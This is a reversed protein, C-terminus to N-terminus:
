FSQTETATSKNSAGLSSQQIKKLPCERILHDPSDCRWCTRPKRTQNNEQAPKKHRPTLSNSQLTTLISTIQQQQVNIQEAQKKLMDLIASEQQIEQNVVQKGKGSMSSVGLWHIARDRMQFFDLTTVEMNLRRLERRLSEDKVAEALRSKLAADRGVSLSPEIQCMNDYLKLLELSSELLSEEKQRYSYFQQQLDPLESGGGFVRRLVTFIEEPDESTKPGRGLIERRAQGALHDIVFLAKGKKDLERLQLQSRVDEIWEDIEPDSSKVPKDRFRDLKRSTTVYVPHNSPSPSTNSLRKMATELLEAEHQAIKSRERETDLKSMMSELEQRLKAIEAEGAM